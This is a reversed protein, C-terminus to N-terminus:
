QALGQSLLILQQLALVIRLQTNSTRRSNM